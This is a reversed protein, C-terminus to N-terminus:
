GSGSSGGSPVQSNPSTPTGPGGGPLGMISRCKQQAAKFAPSQPDIGSGGIQVGVGGNAGSQVKPDPFNPVGNSRMCEGYKIANARLQTIGGSIPKPKPMDKQCAKMASQFAPANVSVGNVTVTQGQGNRESAQIQLGGGSGAKPDPFNPVGHSRMCEAFLIGSSQASSQTSSPDNASKTSSSACGAVLLTAALAPITAYRLM